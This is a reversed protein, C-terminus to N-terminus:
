QCCVNCDEQSNIWLPRYENNIKLAIVYAGQPINLNLDRNVLTVSGADAWVSNKIVLSGVTPNAANIPASIKLPCYGEVLLSSLGQSLNNIGSTLVEINNKNTTIQSASSLSTNDSFRIAGLIRFDASLEAYPVSTNPQFYTPVTTIPEANHNLKLINKTKNGTFAFYLENEPYDSGGYDLVEIVNNRIGIAESNNSNYVRLHGGSPM